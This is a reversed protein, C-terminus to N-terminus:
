FTRLASIRHLWYTEIYICSLKQTDIFTYVFRCCCVKVGCEGAYRNINLAHQRFGNEIRVFPDWGNPDFNSGKYDFLPCTSRSGSFLLLLLVIILRHYYYYYYYYITSFNYYYVSFTLFLSAEPKFWVNQEIWKTQHQKNRNNMQENKM